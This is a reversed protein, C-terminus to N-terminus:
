SGPEVSMADHGVGLLGIVPLVTKIIGHMCFLKIKVHFFLKNECCMYYVKKARRM